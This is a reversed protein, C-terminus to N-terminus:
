RGVGGGGKGGGTSGSGQGGGSSGGSSGSGQGGGPAGGSSGSGQGGGSSAGGGGSAGSGGGSRGGIPPRDAGPLPPPARRGPRRSRYREDYYTRGGPASSTGEPPPDGSGGAPKDAPPPPPDKKNAEREEDRKIMQKALRILMRIRLRQANTLANAFPGTLLAELKKLVESPKKTKRLENELRKLAKAAGHQEIELLGAECAETLAADLKAAQEFRQKAQKLLGVKLAIRASRLRQAGSDPDLQRDVIKLLTEPKFRDFPFDVIATEGNKKISVRLGDERVEVSEVELLQGSRLRISDAQAQEASLLALAAIVGSILAFLRGSSM